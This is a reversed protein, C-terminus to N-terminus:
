NLYRAPTPEPVPTPAIRTDTPEVLRSVEKHLDSIALHSYRRTMVLQRHGLLDTITALTTGAQRLRSAFCHRLDHWRFNPIRAKRVAARFWHGTTHVPQGEINRVVRGSPGDARSRFVALAAMATDNLPVHVPDGNKSHPITAVRSVLDVSEWTLRVYMDTRRLGTNLALDVEPEHSAWEPKSRLAARLRKEEDASLFRVRSNDEREKHVKMHIPSQKVKGVEMALRYTLSILNHHHNVTSVSWHKETTAEKLKAKIDASTVAEAGKGAFWDKIVKLRAVDDAPRAYEDQVYKIADDVLEAYPVVRKRFEPLKGELAEGKRRHYLKIARSKTGAKERHYAGNADTYRSASQWPRPRLLAHNRDAPSQVSSAILVAAAPLPDAWSACGVSV